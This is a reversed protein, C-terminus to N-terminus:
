QRSGRIFRYLAHEFEQKRRRSVPICVNCGTLSIGKNNVMDINDLNVLYSKHPSAFTNGPLSSEIECLKTRYELNKSKTHIVVVHGYSEFYLIDSVRLVIQHGDIEICFKQPSIKHIAASLADSLDTYSVPKPLYRFAVAYGRHTYKSSNTIFIVLPPYQMATIKEAATFGNMGDMEIDLLVIDVPQNNLGSLVGEASIYLSVDINADYKRILSQLHTLEKQEDDCIAIRM